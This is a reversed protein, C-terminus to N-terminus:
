KFFHRTEWEYISALSAIIELYLRDDINGNAAIVIKKSETTINWVKSFDMLLLNINLFHITLYKHMQTLDLFYLLYLYIYMYLKTMIWFKIITKVLLDKM